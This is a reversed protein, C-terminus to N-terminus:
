YRRALAAATLRWSRLPDPRALAPDFVQYRARRLRRLDAAALIAPLLAPLATRPVHRRNSRAATLHAEARDAIERVIDALPASAGGAFLKEVDLGAKAVLAAPLRHRRAAADFPIARLIGALAYAIGIERAAAKAVTGSIGLIDLVLLQLPASSEEAYAELVAMTAPSEGGLDHERAEMLREFLAGDLDFRRIAAALPQLVEHGQVAVNQYAAELRERWWQLRIRGLLPESVTERIRAIEYNFAYVAMVAERREAPAFLSLLFRDRDNRRLLKALARLAEPEATAAM